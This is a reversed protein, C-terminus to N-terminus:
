VHQVGVGDRHLSTIGGFTNVSDRDFLGSVEYCFASAVGPKSVVDPRQM